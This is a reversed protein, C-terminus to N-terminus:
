DRNRWPERARRSELIQEMVADQNVAIKPEYSEFFEDLAHQQDLILKANARRVRALMTSRIFESRSKSTLGAVEDIENLLQKPLSINITSM